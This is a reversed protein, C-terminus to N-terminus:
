LLHLDDKSSHPSHRSLQRTRIGIARRYRGGLHRLEACCTPCAEEVPAHIQEDRPLHAPLPKRERTTRTKKSSTQPAADAQAQEAQLDELKLELQEIQRDLKESKRGFQMRKLEAILLKLHEIKLASSSVQERLDQVVADRAAITDTLPILRADSALLLAQLTAVDDPLTNPLANSLM